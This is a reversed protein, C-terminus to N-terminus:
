PTPKLRALATKLMNKKATDRKYTYTESLTLLDLWRILFASDTRLKDKAGAWQEDCQALEGAVRNSENWCPECLVRRQNINAKRVEYTYKQDSASFVAERKCNWCTYRLDKYERVWEFSVSRQSEESWQTPDAPVTNPEDTEHMARESRIRV